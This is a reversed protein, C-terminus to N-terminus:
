LHIQYFYVARKTFLGVSDSNLSLHTARLAAKFFVKRQQEQWHDIFSLDLVQMYKRLAIEKSENAFSWEALEFLEILKETNSETPSQGAAWEAYPTLNGRVQKQAEFSIKSSSSHRVFISPNAWTLNVSLSSFIVLCFKFILSM